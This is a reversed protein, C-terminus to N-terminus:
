THMPTLSVPRPKSPANRSSHEFWEERSTESSGAEAKCGDTFDNAIMISSDVDLAFGPM